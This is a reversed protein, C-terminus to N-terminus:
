IWQKIKTLPLLKHLMYFINKLIKVIYNQGCDVCTLDLKWSKILKYQRLKWSIITNMDMRIWLIVVPM